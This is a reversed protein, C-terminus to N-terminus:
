VVSQRDAATMGATESILYPVFLYLFLGVIACVEILTLVVPIFRSRMHLIKMNWKVIPEMMYALLCAVLFPLLVGKLLNLLYLAALLGCISFLIRVVRDFTYPQRDRYVTPDQDHYSM